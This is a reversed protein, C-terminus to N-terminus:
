AIQEVLNIWEPHSSRPQFDYCYANQNPKGPQIFFLGYIRTGDHGESMVM